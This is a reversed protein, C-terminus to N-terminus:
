RGRMHIFECREIQPQSATSHGFALSLGRAHLRSTLSRIDASSMNLFKRPLSSISTALVAFVLAIWYEQGAREERRAAIDKLFPGKTPIPVICYAHDYFTTLIQMCLSRPLVQEIPNSSALHEGGPSDLRGVITLTCLCLLSLPETLSVRPLIPKIRM